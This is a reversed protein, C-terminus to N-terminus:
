FGKGVVVSRELIEFFLTIWEDLVLGSFCRSSPMTEDLFDTYALLLISM